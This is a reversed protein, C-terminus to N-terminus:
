ETRLSKVPSALAAKMAQYSVTALTILLACVASAVFLWWPLGTRYEYRQLWQHLYFWSIPTAICCSIVVLVVFETSLLRWLSYVSAGLVKRVGMEKTRQEAVFSALGFLGLCSILIAFLAFVGALRGVREEDSFKTAYEDDTFKYEFPSGPNHQHFVPALKALAFGIPVTPKVRVIISSTWGFNPYFVTPKIPTYPSEMVMDHIVGIVQYPKGNWQITMGVPHAIGILKVAAENLILANSDTTFQRSYDRGEKIHWHLTHGYDFTVAIIGFAPQTAPDKGAWEFGIQNSNVETPKSNSEAMDEVVGTRLLDGRLENYHGWIEPTNIDMTLLGERTYGVPRNKAYQVQKYVIVTGIILAVSVTFQVV